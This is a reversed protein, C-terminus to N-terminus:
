NNDKDNHSMKSDAVPDIADGACEFFRSRLSYVVDRDSTSFCVMVGKSSLNSPVPRVLHVDFVLPIILFIGQSGTFFTLAAIPLLGAAIGLGDDMVVGMGTEHFKVVTPFLVEFTGFWVFLKRRKDSRNEKTFLFRM